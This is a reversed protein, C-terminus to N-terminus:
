AGDFKADFLSKNEFKPDKKVFNHANIGLFNWFPRQFDEKQGWKLYTLEMQTKDLFFGNKLASFNM